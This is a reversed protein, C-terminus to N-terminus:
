MRQETRGMTGQHAVSRRLSGQSRPFYIIGENTSKWITGSTLGLDVWEEKPDQPGFIDGLFSNECSMLCFAALFLVIKKM